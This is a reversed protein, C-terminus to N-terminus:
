KKYVSKLDLTGVPNQIVGSVTTRQLTPLSKYGLVIVPADRQLYGDAKKM